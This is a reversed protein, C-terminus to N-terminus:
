ISRYEKTTRLVWELFDEAKLEWKYQSIPILKDTADQIAAILSPVARVSCDVPSKEDIDTNIETIEIDLRDLNYHTLIIFKM